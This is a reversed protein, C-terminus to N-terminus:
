ICQSYTTHLNWQSIKRIPVAPWNFPLINSTCLGARKLM